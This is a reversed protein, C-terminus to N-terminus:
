GHTIYLFLMIMSLCVEVRCAYSKHLVHFTIIRSQKSSFLLWTTSYEAWNFAGCNFCFVGLCFKNWLFDVRHWSCLPVSSILNTQIIFSTCSTPIVFPKLYGFACVSCLSGTWLLWLLILFYFFFFSWSIYCLLLCLVNKRRTFFLYEM